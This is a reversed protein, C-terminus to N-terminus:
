PHRQHMIGLFKRYKVHQCFMTMLVADTLQQVDLIHLNADKFFAPANHKGSEHSSLTSTLVTSMLQM